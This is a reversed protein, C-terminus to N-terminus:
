PRRSLASLEAVVHTDLEVAVAPVVIEVRPDAMVSLAACLDHHGNSAAARKTILSRLAIEQEGALVALEAAEGGM